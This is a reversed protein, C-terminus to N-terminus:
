KSDFAYNNCDGYFSYNCRILLARKEPFIWLRIKHKKPCIWFRIMFGHNEPHIRRILDLDPNKHNVIQANKQFPNSFFIKSPRNESCSHNVVFATFM